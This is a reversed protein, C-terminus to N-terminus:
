TNVKMNSLGSLEDKLFKLVAPGGESAQERNVAEIADLIRLAVRRHREKLPPNNLQTYLYGSMLYPTYNFEGVLKKQARYLALGLSRGSTVENVFKNATFVGVTNLIDTSTGVYM